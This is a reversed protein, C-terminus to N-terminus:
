KVKKNNGKQYICMFDEKTRIFSTIWRYCNINHKLCSKIVNISLTENVLWNICEVITNFEITNWTYSMNDICIFKDCIDDYVIFYNLLYAKDSFDIRNEQYERFLITYLEYDIEYIM